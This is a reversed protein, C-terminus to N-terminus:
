EPVPPASKPWQQREVCCKPNKTFSSGLERDHQLDGEGPGINVILSVLCAQVTEELVMRLQADVMEAPSLEQQVFVAHCLIGAPALVVLNREKRNGRGM